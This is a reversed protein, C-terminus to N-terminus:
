SFVFEQIGILYLVDFSWVVLLVSLLLLM